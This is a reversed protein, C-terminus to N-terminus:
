AMAVLGATEKIAGNEYLSSSTEDGLRVAIVM